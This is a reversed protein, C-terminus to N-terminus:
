ARKLRPGAPSDEVLAGRALLDARLADSRGWDKRKRAEEREAVLQLVEAPWEQERPGQQLLGLLGGLERLLRAGARAGPADGAEGFRNVARALDFLHGMARATNFDDQMAEHFGDRAAVLAPDAPPEAPGEAFGGFREVPQRLREFATHAEALREESFEIPSRYHTALLFFRIEEPPITRLLDEMLFFRKESKSMKQGGLNVMGNHMWFNVFDSGTAAESQAIENEHHPFVLDQGGGHLDFHNGLCSTSMASCEIHWGPRGAGWPSSWAPEGPKAAKWLAFDLPDDKAEDVEVRAGSRLEEVKKGSLRGYGPFGSVDSYVDGNAAVYAHGKEILRVIMAVIEDIHGTARPEQDPPLVGLAGSDEHMAAIFRETLEHFPECGYHHEAGLEEWSVFRCQGGRKVAHHKDWENALFHNLSSLLFTRFHGRERDAQRVYDKELFRAFFEQTLDQAEEPSHGRRRVYAYLPYWYDRCLRALAEQADSPRPRGARLVVSWHTTAFHAEDSGRSGLPQDGSAM